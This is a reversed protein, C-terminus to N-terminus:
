ENWQDDWVHRSIEEKRIIYEILEMSIINFDGDMFKYKPIRKSRELIVAMQEQSPSSQFFIVFNNTDNFRISVPRYCGHDDPMQCITDEFMMEIDPEILNKGVECMGITGTLWACLQREFNGAYADTKIVLGWCSDTPEMM